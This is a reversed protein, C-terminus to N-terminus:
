FVRLLHNLRRWIVAFLWSYLAGWGLAFATYLLLGAQHAEPGLPHFGTLYPLLLLGTLLAGGALLAGQWRRLGRRPGWGTILGLPGNLCAFVLAEELNLLALLAGAAAWCLLAARGTLRAAFAVPLGALAALLYGPGPWLAGGLQLLASLAALLSLVTLKSARM